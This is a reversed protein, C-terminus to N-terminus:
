PRVSIASLSEIQPNKKDCDGEKLYFYFLRGETEYLCLHDINAISNGTALNPQASDRGIFVLAVASQDAIIKAKTTLSDIMATRAISNGALLLIIASIAIGLLFAVVIVWLLKSQLAHSRKYLKTM